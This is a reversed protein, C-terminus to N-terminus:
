FWIRQILFVVSDNLVAGYIISKIIRWHENDINQQIQKTKKFINKLFLVYSIFLYSTTFRELKLTTKLKSFVMVM